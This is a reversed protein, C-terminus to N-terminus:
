SPTLESLLEILNDSEYIWASEAASWASRAASEAASWAASWASRASEASEASDAASWASRAASEAASEAASRASWASRASEASEASDAASWASRAASEAASEAAQRLYESPNYHYEIVGEIASNVTDGNSEKILATLRKIALKHRIVAIDADVPIASLLQVPFLVAQEKPLGEFIKEALYILWEPLEMADIAKSLPDNKTQMACGFFCGRHIKTSEKDDQLWSGQVLRDADQHAQMIGIWKTKLEQNFTLESMTDM